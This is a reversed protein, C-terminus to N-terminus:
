LQERTHPPSGVDEPDYPKGDISNGRIRPHDEVVNLCRQLAIATGAYAPTIGQSDTYEAAAKPQQERTHPPSGAMYEACVKCSKSNGRIRPHDEIGGWITRRCDATGAYAPTIRMLLIIGLDDMRQERTHPPSGPAM